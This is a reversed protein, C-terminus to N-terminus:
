MNTTMQFCCTDDKNDRRVESDTSINDTQRDTERFTQKLAVVSTQM